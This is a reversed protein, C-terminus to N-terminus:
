KGCIKNPSKMRLKSDFREQTAKESATLNRLSLELGALVVTLCASQLMGDTLFLNRDTSYCHGCLSANNKDKM